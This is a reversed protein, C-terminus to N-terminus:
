ITYFRSESAILNRRNFIESEGDEILILKGEADLLKEPMKDRLYQRDVPPVSHVWSPLVMPEYPPYPDSGHERLIHKGDRRMGLGLRWNFSKLLAEVVCALIAYRIPDPDRPDPVRSLDWSSADRYWFYETEYGIVVVQEEGSMVVEYLRYLSRLPTDRSRWIPISQLNKIDGQVRRTWSLEPNDLLTSPSLPDPIPFSWSLLSTPLCLRLLSLYPSSENGHRLRTITGRLRLPSHLRLWRSKLRM